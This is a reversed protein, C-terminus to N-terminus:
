AGWGGYGRRLVKGPAAGTPQGGEIVLQGAVVVHHIGEAYAFPSELSSRDSVSAADLVVLDAWAGPALRGRDAMGLRAAPISTMKRIALALPLVSEDRAYHGLVRAFTGFHRPHATAGAVESLTWGDSAVAVEPHGLVRRVEEEAMRDLLVVQTEDGADRVLAVLAERADSGREAAVQALTRGTFRDGPDHAILVNGPDEGDWLGGGAVLAGLKTSSATYPYQDATVDLGGGTAADILRLAEAVSGRGRGAAKLHSIHVGVGTRSAVAIAERVATVLEAGEDRLHSAYFGSARATTAALQELETPAADRGPEYILGSSLGAAGDALARALLEDMRGVEAPTAPRPEGGMVAHRLTGHGVLAVLNPVLSLASAAAFSAGADEHLLDPQASLFGAWSAVRQRATAPVPFGSFGCNGTVLTTVGQRVMAPADPHAHITFDCHTHLDIFGPAVVAGRADMTRRAPGDIPGIAVIRGERVAVDASRPQRGSGDIVSGGRVLLDHM